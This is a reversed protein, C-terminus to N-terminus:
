KITKNEDVWEKGNKLSLILIRIILLIIPLGLLTLLGYLLSIDFYKSQYYNRSRWILNQLQSTSFVNEDGINKRYECVANYNYNSGWYINGYPIGQIIQLTDYRVGSYDIEFGEYAKYVGMYYILFIIIAIPISIKFSRFFRLVENAIISKSM